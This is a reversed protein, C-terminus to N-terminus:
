FLILEMAKICVLDLLESSFYSELFSMCNFPVINQPLKHGSMLEEKILDEISKWNFNNLRQRNHSNSDFVDKLSHILDFPKMLLAKDNLYSLYIDVVDTELYRTMKLNHILFSAQDPSLHDRM